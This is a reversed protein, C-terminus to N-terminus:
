ATPPPNNPPPTQQPTLTKKPSQSQSYQKAQYAEFDAYPDTKLDDESQNILKISYDQLCFKIYIVQVWVIAMVMLPTAMAIGLIGTLTGMIIQSLFLAVPPLDILKKQVLPAVVYSELQQIVVIMVIVWILSDPSVVLTLVLIPVASVWPGIVPVFDLVFALVGLALAFPIDLLWLGIGVSLGVFAMVVLQGLLWQELAEYSNKLLYNAQPKHRKPILAIASQTYTNPSLALFLGIVVIVFFTGLGNLMGGLLMPLRSAINSQFQTLFAIPDQQLQSFWQSQILHDYLIPYNQVFNKVADFSHPVLEQIDDYQKMLEKGFLALFVVVMAVMLLTTIGVQVGHPLKAFNSGIKPLRHMLKSLSLLFVAVLIAAFAILWVGILYYFSLLLLVLGVFFVIASKPLTM